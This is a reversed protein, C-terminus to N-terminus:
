QTTLLRKAIAVGLYFYYYFLLFLERALGKGHCSLAASPLQRFLQRTLESIVARITVSHTMEPHRNTCYIRSAIHQRMFARGRKKRWPHLVVSGPVFSITNGAKLLRFRLDVDEMAASPFAPDFGGLESFLGKRIAFNCSWLYGGTENIPCEMDVRTRVGVPSTKGELVECGGGIAKAQYAALFGDAPLCDDDTFVLWEGTAVKAGNNRNAAPGRCPGQLWWAWPFRERVLSKATTSRGDDSVIVEYQDFPLTQVGPALRDLCKALDDNRHCTPIVVSFMVREAGIEDSLSRLARRGFEGNAASDSM